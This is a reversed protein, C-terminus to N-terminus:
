AAPTTDALPAAERATAAASTALSVASPIRLTFVSGLGLNSAVTLQGHMGAAFERSIALGLGTGGFGEFAPTALQVYPEFIDRLRDNPIGPGNDSVDFRVFEDDSQCSIRVVGGTGCFKVANAALNVLIQKLKDGDASVFLGSGASMELAVGHGSALPAVVSHAIRIAEAASVPAIQYSVHGAELRSFTILDDIVHVLVEESDHVRALLRAQEPTPPDAAGVRLLDIYGAISQLPTRLEHSMRAFFQIKARGAQETRERAREADARGRAESLAVVVLRGCQEVLRVMRKSTTRDQRFMMVLEGITQGELGFLPVIEIARVGLSHALTKFSENADLADRVVVRRHESLALSFADAGSRHAGILAAQDDDIGYAVAPVLTGDTEDHLLLVTMDARALTLALELAPRLEAAPLPWAPPAHTDRQM